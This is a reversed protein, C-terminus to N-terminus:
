GDARGKAREAARDVPSRFGDPCGLLAHESRAVGCVCTPDPDGRLEGDPHPGGEHWDSRPYVPQGYAGPGYTM